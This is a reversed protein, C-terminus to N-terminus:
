RIYSRDRLEILDGHLPTGCFTRVDLRNGDLEEYAVVSISPTIGSDILM